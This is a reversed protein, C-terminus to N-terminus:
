SMSIHPGLNIHHPIVHSMMMYGKKNQILSDHFVNKDFCAM